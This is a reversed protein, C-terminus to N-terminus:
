WGAGISPCNRLYNGEPFLPHSVLPKRNPFWVLTFAEELCIGGGKSPFSLSRISVGQM